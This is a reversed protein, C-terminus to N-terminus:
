ESRPAGPVPPRIWLLLAPLLLLDALLATAIVISALVAFMQNPPFLSTYLVGFGAMLLVSTYVIARGTRRGTRRVAEEPSAGARVEQCYRALYHITDDVAIGLGISFVMASLTELHRGAWGMGGLVVIIPLTNPIMALAALRWSRLLAVLTVFIIIFAYGLSTLLDRILSDIGGYGVQSTGAIQAKVQIPSGALRDAMWREMRKELALYNKAGLDDARFTLRLVRRDTSLHTDLVTREGSMEALLLLGATERRSTPLADRPEGSAAGGRQVWRIERLLSLVSDAAHVFGDSLIDREIAEARALLDPDHWPDDGGVGEPVELLVDLHVIGALEEELLRHGELIPDDDPVYEMIFNDITTKPIGAVFAAAVILCAIAITRHRGIVVDTCADAVRSLRRALGTSTPRPPVPFRGLAWPVFFITLVFTIMVGMAAYAGFHRLISLHATGLTAFGAATTVSTLFCAGGVASLARRVADDSDAGDAREHQYRAILHIADAAGIVLILTATITNIINISEGTVAMLALTLVTGLFVSTLPILVGSVSRFTAFLVLILILGTLPIFKLEESVMLDVVTVRYAHPGLLHLEYGPHAAEVEALITRLERVVPRVDTIGVVDDAIKLFVSAVRGSKSVLTDVLLPNARAADTMTAALADDLPEGSWLPAIVISGPSPSRPVPVSGLSGTREVEPVRAAVAEEIELFLEWSEATRIDGKVLVFLVHDDAGYTDRYEQYLRARESTRDFLTQPSFDFRLSPLAALGLVGLVVFVWGFRRTRLLFDALRGWGPTVEPPPYPHSPQM